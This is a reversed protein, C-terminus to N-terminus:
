TVADDGTPASYTTTGRELTDDDEKSLAAHLLHPLPHCLTVLIVGAKGCLVRVVDPIAV